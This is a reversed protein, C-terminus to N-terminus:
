GNGERNGELGAGSSNNTPYGGMGGRGTGREKEGRHAGGNFPPVQQRENMRTSNGRNEGRRHFEPVFGGDRGGNRYPSRQSPLSHHQRQLWPERQQQQAWHQRYGQQPCQQQHMRPKHSRSQKRGQPSDRRRANLRREHLSGYVDWPKYALQSSRVSEEEEGFRPRRSGKKEREKNGGTGRSCEGGGWERPAKGTADKERTSTNGSIEEVTEEEEEEQEEEPLAVGEVIAKDSRRAMSISYQNDGVATQQKNNSAEVATQGRRRRTTKEKWQFCSEAVAHERGSIYVFHWLYWDRSADM